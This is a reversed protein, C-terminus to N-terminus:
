KKTNEMKEISTLRQHAEHRLEAFNLPKAPCKGEKTRCKAFASSMRTALNTSSSGIESPKVFSKAPQPM